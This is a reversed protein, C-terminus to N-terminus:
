PHGGSVPVWESVPENTRRIVLIAIVVRGLGYMCPQVLSRALLFWDFLWWVAPIMCPVSGQDSLIRACTIPSLPSLFLSCDHTLTTNHLYVLRAPDVFSPSVSESTHCTDLTNFLEFKDSVHKYRHFSHAM